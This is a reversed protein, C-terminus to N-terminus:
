KMSRKLWEVDEKVSDVAARPKPDVEKLRQRGVIAMFGGAALLIVAMILSALWVPMVLALAAVCTVVVLLGSVALVALGGALLGGAKGARIAKERIEMRALAIESRVIEGIQNIIDQIIEATSRHGRGDTVPPTEVYREPM